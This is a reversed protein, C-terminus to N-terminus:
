PSIRSGDHPAGLYVQVPTVREPHGHEEGLIGAEFLPVMREAAWDGRAAPSEWVMVATVDDGGSEWTIAALLGAPPDTFLRSHDWVAQLLSRELTITEAFM